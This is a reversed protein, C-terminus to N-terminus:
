AGIVTRVPLVVILVSGKFTVVGGVPSSESYATVICGTTITYLSQGAVNGGPYFLGTVATGATVLPFLIAGPGTTATPDYLGSFDLKGGPVGAVASKWTSGFATTDSTDLDTSFDINTLFAALAGSNLTLAANKGHRFAM